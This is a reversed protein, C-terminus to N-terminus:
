GAACEAATAPLLHFYGFPYDLPRRSLCAAGAMRDVLAEVEVRRGWVMPREALLRAIFVPDTNLDLLRDLAEVTAHLGFHEATLGAHVEFVDIVSDPAEFRGV